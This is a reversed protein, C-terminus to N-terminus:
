DVKITIKNFSSGTGAGAMSNKNFFSVKGTGLDKNPWTVETNISNQNSQKSPTLTNAIKLFNQQLIERVLPTIGKVVGENLKQILYQSVKYHLVRFDNNYKLFDEQNSKKVTNLLTKLSGKFQNTNRASEIEESNFSYNNTLETNINNKVFWDLLVFPQIDGKTEKSRMLEIVQIAPQYEKSKQLNNPIKLSALSWGAGSGKTGGKVSLWISNGDPGTFGVVSAIADSLPNNRGKPFTIKMKNFSDLGIHKFFENQNEFKAHGSLLVLVGLYEMADDRISRFQGDTTNTLLDFTTNGQAIGKAIEIVKKGVESEQLKTNNIIASFLAKSGQYTQEHLGIESPSIMGSTEAKSGVAFKGAKSFEATKLLKFPNSSTQLIKLLVSNKKPDKKFYGKLNIPLAGQTKTVWQDYHNLNDKSIIFDGRPDNTQFPLENQIKNRFIPIRDNATGKYKLIEKGVLYPISAVETIIKFEKFRMVINLTLYV